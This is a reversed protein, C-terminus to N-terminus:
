VKKNLAYSNIIFINGLRGGTMAVAWFAKTKYAKELLTPITTLNDMNVSIIDELRDAVIGYLGDDSYGDKFMIVKSDGEIGNDSAGPIQLLNVGMDSAEDTSIIASVEESDISVIFEGCKFVVLELEVSGETLVAEM